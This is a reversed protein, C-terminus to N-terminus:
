IINTYCCIRNDFDEINDMKFCETKSGNFSICPIYNFQNIYQKLNFELDYINEGTGHIEKIIEYTYPMQQTSKYRNKTSTTTIGIKYFQENNNWCKILYLTCIKNQARNIFGQRTFTNCETKLKLSREKNSCLRCGRGELHKRAKQEFDGHVPCTIIVKNDGKSYETKTYIFKNNHKLNAKQLFQEKTLTYSDIM